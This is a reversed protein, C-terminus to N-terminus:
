APAPDTEWTWQFRDTCLPVFLLRTKGLTIMDYPALASPSYLAKDNLYTMPGDGPSLYYADSDKAKPDYRLVAHRDRHVTDDAIAIKNSSERGISNGEAFIRYDRGKCPGDVAVLWGVVPSQADRGWWPVTRRGERYEDNPRTAGVAAPKPEEVYPKTGAVEIIPCSPCRRNVAPDYFHGNPCQVANAM